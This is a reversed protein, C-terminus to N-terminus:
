LLQSTIAPGTDFGVTVQCISPCSSAAQGRLYWTGEEEEGRTDWATSDCSRGRKRGSSTKELCSTPIATTLHWLPATPHDVLQKM